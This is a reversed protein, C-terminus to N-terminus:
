KNLIKNLEIERKENLTVFFKKPYFGTYIKKGFISSYENEGSGYVVYEDQSFFDADYWKGIVLENIQNVENTYSICQVKIM